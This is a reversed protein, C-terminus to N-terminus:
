QEKVIVYLGPRLVYTGPKTGEPVTNKITYIQEATLTNGDIDWVINKEICTECDGACDCRFGVTRDFPCYDPTGALTAILLGKEAETCTIKM